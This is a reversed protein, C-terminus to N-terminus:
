ASIMVTNIFLRFTMKIFNIWYNNYYINNKWIIPFIEGLFQYIHKWIVHRLGFFRLQLRIMVLKLLRCTAKLQLFIKLEQTNIFDSSCQFLRLLLRCTSKTGCSQDCSYSGCIKFDQNLIAALPSLGGASLLQM